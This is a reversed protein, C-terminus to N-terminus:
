IPFVCIFSPVSEIRHEVYVEYIVKPKTPILLKKECNTNKMKSLKLEYNKKLDEKRSNFLDMSHESFIKNFPMFDVRIPYHKKLLIAKEFLYKQFKKQYIKDKLKHNM